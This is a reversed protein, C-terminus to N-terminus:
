FHYGRLHPIAQGRRLGPQHLLGSQCARPIVLAFSGSQVRISLEREPTSPILSPFLASELLITPFLLARVHYRFLRRRHHRHHSPHSLEQSVLGDLPARQM